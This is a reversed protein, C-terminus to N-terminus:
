SAIINYLKAIILTFQIAGSPVLFLAFSDKMGYVAAICTYNGFDCGDISVNLVDEGMQGSAVETGDRLWSLM